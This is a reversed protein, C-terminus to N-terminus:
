TGGDYCEDCSAIIALKSAKREPSYIRHVPVIDKKEKVEGFVQLTGLM